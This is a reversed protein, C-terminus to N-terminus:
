TFAAARGGFSSPVTADREFANTTAKNIPVIATERTAGAATAEGVLGRLAFATEIVKYPLWDLPHPKPGFLMVWGPGGIATVVPSTMVKVRKAASLWCCLRTMSRFLLWISSVPSGCEFVNELGVVDIVNWYVAL